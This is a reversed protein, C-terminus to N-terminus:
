SLNLAQELEMKEFADVASDPSCNIVRVGAAKIAKAGDKFSKRYLAFVSDPERRPHDGFWHTPKGKAPERGDYGLLIITAAGALVALNLAQYGSNGGTVLYEPDLSLGTGNAPFNKNRLLHVAGDEINMGSNQISCKEGTFSIFDPKAKHWNWWESDAFYCLDAGPAIRYADNIALIYIGKM